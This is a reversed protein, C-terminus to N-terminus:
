SNLLQTASCIRTYFYILIVAILSGALASAMDEPSDWEDGQAGIFEAGLGPAVTSAVLWEIIEYVASTALIFGVGISSLWPEGIRAGKRLADMVLWTILLGWLFHVLRDYRAHNFWLRECAGLGVRQVGPKPDSRSISLRAQSLINRLSRMQSPDCPSCPRVDQPRGIITIPKSGATTHPRGEPRGPQAELECLYNGNQGAARPTM